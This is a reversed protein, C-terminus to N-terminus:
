VEKIIKVFDEYHEPTAQITEIVRDLALAYERWKAKKFNFRIQFPVM